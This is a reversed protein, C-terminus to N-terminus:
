YKDCDVVTKTQSINIKVLRFKTVEAVDGLVKTKALENLKNCMTRAYEEDYIGHVGIEQWCEGCASYEGHEYEPLYNRDHCLRWRDWKSQYEEIQYFEYNGDKRLMRVM